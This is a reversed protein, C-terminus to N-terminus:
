SAEQSSRIPEGRMSGPPTPNRALAGRTLPKRVLCLRALTAGTAPLVRSRRWTGDRAIMAWRALSRPGGVLLASAGLREAAQLREDAQRRLAPSLRYTDPLPDPGVDVPVYGLAEIMRVQRADSADCAVPAAVPPRPLRHGRDLLLDDVSVVRLGARELDANHMRCMAFVVRGDRWAAASSARVSGRWPGLQIGTRAYGFFGLVEIAAALSDTLRVPRVLDAAIVSLFPLAGPLLVPSRPLASPLGHRRLWATPSPEVEPRLSMWDLLALVGDIGGDALIEDPPVERLLHTGLKDLSARFAAIAAQPGSPGSSPEDFLLRDPHVGVLELLQRAQQVRHRASAEGGDLRCTKEHRGLVLVGRAGRAFPELLSALTTWGTCPQEVLAAGDPMRHALNSRKCAMVVESVGEGRASRLVSERPASASIANSPCAGVCAGCGRCHEPAISAVWDGGRHVTVRAVHFPCAEECAGCGMCRSEDVRCVATPFLRGWIRYGEPTREGHVHGTPCVTVCAGCGVCDEPPLGAFTGIRKIAGRYCTTIAATAYSECVRTCLGCLICDDADPDVTLGDTSAGHRDALDRIVKSNPCRAALLSLVGRRATRVAESRTSVELGETAPYLCATVLGKWGNWDPHTVEVMCLRCAGAPELDPHDCLTPIDIGVARAAALLYSGRDVHVPRGDITISVKNTTRQATM